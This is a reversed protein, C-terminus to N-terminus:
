QNETNSNRFEERYIKIKAEKKLNMFWDHFGQRRKRDRIQNYYYNETESFRTKDALKKGSIRFVAYGKYIPIPPYISGIKMNLM